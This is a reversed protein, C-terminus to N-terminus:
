RWCRSTACNPTPRSRPSVGYGDLKPLHIDCIILDPREGRAGNRRRQRRREGILAHLRFCTLLYVMLEMNTPNDEIILIRASV